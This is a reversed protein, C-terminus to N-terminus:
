SQHEAARSRDLERLRRKLGRPSVGLELASAEIDGEVRQLTMEIEARSLDAPKRLRPCREVLAYLSTPSIGAAAAAARMNFRHTRLLEVLEDDDIESPKKRVQPKQTAGPSVFSPSVVSPADLVTSLAPGALLMEVTEPLRAVDEGRNTIVIQRTVNILQRVNGPWDYAALRAVAEAPLWPVAPPNQCRSGEGVAKLEQCLFHVFLRGFDDRRQRLSPLHIQFGALRHLLPARFRQLAIGRELDADTASILRVDVRRSEESGVPRIERTELARLLLAQVEPPTEGIEDLFLSGGDAKVFLGPRRSAGTYAGRTTGFLEAAALESPLAGMNVAVFPKERRRSASHLAKAVLEKGTGTEGRLLVPVELDCVQHIEGRLRAMLWSEGILGFPPLGPLSVPDVLHLLLIVHPGLRLVVGRELQAASLDCSGEVLRGDAEVRTRSGSVDLRLASQQSRRSLVVPRRSLGAQDLSRRTGDGGPHSFGPSRRSLPVEGARVLDLLVAREGIRSLDPHYLVTLGPVRADCEAQSLNGLGLDTETSRHTLSGPASPTPMAVLNADGRIVVYPRTPKGPM